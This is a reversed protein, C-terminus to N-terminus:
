NLFGERASHPAIHPLNNAVVTGLLAERDASSVQSTIEVFVATSPRAMVAILFPPQLPLARMLRVQLRQESRSSHQLRPQGHTRVLKQLESREREPLPEEIRRAARDAAKSNIALRCGLLSACALTATSIAHRCVAVIFTRLRM